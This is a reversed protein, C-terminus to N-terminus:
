ARRFQTDIHGPAAPFLPFEGRHPQDPGQKPQASCKRISSTASMAAIAESVFVAAAGAVASVSAAPPPPAVKAAKNCSRCGLAPCVAFAVAAVLCNTAWFSLPALTVLPCVAELWFAEPLAGTVAAEIVCAFKIANNCVPSAFGGIAVPTVVVAGVLALPCGFTWFSLVGFPCVGDSGEPSAPAVGTAAWSKIANNCLPPM